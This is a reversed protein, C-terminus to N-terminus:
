DAKGRVEFRVGRVQVSGSEEGSWGGREKSEKVRRAELRV